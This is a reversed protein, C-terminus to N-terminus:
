VLVIVATVSIRHFRELVRQRVHSHICAGAGRKGVRFGTWRSAIAFDGHKDSLHFGSAMMSHKIDGM